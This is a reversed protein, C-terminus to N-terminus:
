AGGAYDDEGPLLQFEPKSILVWLGKNVQMPKTLSLGRLHCAGGKRHLM